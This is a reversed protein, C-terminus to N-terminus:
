VNAGGSAREAVVLADRLMSSLAIQADEYLEFLHMDEALALKEKVEALTFVPHRMVEEARAYMEAIPEQTTDEIATMAAWWSAWAAKNTERDPSPGLAEIKVRNAEYLAAVADRAEQLARKKVAFVPDQGAMASQVSVAALAVAGAIVARRPITTTHNTNAM